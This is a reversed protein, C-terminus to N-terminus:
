WGRCGRSASSAVLPLRDDPHQATRLHHHVSRWRRGLRDPRQHPEGRLREETGARRWVIEQHHDPTARPCQAVSVQRVLYTVAPLPVLEEADRDEPRRVVVQNREAPRHAGDPDARDDSDRPAAGRREAPKSTTGVKGFGKGNSPPRAPRRAPSTRATAGTNRNEQASGRGHAPSM